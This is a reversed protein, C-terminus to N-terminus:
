AQSRGSGQDLGKVRALVPTPHACPLQAILWQVIGPYQRFQASVPSRPGFGEGACAARVSKGTEPQFLRQALGAPVGTPNPHYSPM